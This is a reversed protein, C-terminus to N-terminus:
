TLGFMNFHRKEELTRICTKKLENLAASKNKEHSAKLQNM